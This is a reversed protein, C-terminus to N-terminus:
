VKFFPIFAPHDKIDSYLDVDNRKELLKYNSKKLENITDQLVTATGWNKNKFLKPHLQKMGLLYYGGDEAPGIVIEHNNLVNFAQELDKTEIDYLDSGIIIIKSYGLHFGEAFANQMREGLDEGVQKKKQFVAANWLDNNPIEESYYVAKETDLPTCIKATHALLFKYIDLAAQHGIDRALRTKVKGFEPNRTFILLLNKSTITEGM